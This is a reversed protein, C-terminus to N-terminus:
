GLPPLENANATVLGPERRAFFALWMLMATAVLVVPFVVQNVMEWGFRALLQGSSFSGIAMSGFVLFDNVAQVKNREEPRHCETVLATAGIFAFNWGMGILVLTAWFHWITVGSMGVAAGAAIIAFGTVAVRNVGLRIILSGTFFSPAFMAMVHWQLGLAASTMSHNCDIMAVPASTMVLNMMAYSAAGCIVAVILRPQRFIESLPRANGLLHHDAAPKPFRVLTLVAAAVVAVVAQTLYSAAFLYPQLMDQTIIIVQPGFVGALIGGALVYSIAKPRFAPSATDAAAFRYSQHGAAYFGGFAGGMCLILFSGQIVALACLLGAIMGCFAGAEFAALRGFRRAIWGIPLTAACMGLVFISVPVTALTKDGALMGGVIGATGVIVTNNAGALAQAFALILANRRALRDDVGADIGTEALAPM